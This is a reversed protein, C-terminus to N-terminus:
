PDLEQHPHGNRRLFNALRLVEGSQSQGVIVPGGTGEELLGIRRIILARMIREGLEAEAILLARLRDPPIVLADVAGQAHADVLAPRGALQALEGLFSGAGHTVILRGQGSSAHRTVDVKGSLIVTFGENVRGAQALIEGPNYSRLTGFRRMREIEPHELIPFAQERRAEIISQKPPAM